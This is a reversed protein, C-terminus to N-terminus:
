KAFRAYGFRDLETLIHQTVADLWRRKREIEPFASLKPSFKGHCTEDRYAPSAFKPGLYGADRLRALDAEPLTNGLQELVFQAVARAGAREMGTWINVKIIGDEVLRNMQEPQLCSSGHLCLVKGVAASIERARDSRYKLDAASARHETGLNPVILFAGTKQVFRVAQAVETISVAPQGSGSAAIEDVAGEVLTKGKVTEVYCATKEINEELPYHSGDYMITAFADLWFPDYFFVDDPGPQGHDLHLMVRLNRNPSRESLLLQLDQLCAQAGLVADDVDLYWRTQGRDPYHTTFGIIIPLDAVGIRAGFTHVARLIAELTRRNEVDYCALCAGRERAEAYLEEVQRVDKILAM